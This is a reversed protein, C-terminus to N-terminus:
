TTPVEVLMFEDGSNIVVGINAGLSSAMSVTGGRYRAVAIVDGTIGCIIAVAHNNEMNSVPFNAVYVAPGTPKDSRGDFYTKVADAATESQTVTIIRGPITTGGGIGAAM